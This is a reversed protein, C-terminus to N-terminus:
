FRYLELGPIPIHLLVLQFLPMTGLAIRCYQTGWISKIQPSDFNFHKHRYRWNKTSMDLRDDFYVHNVYQMLTDIKDSFVNDDPVSVVDISPVRIATSDRNLLNKLQRGFYDLVEAENRYSRMQRKVNDFSKIIITILLNILIISMVFAFFFFILPGLFPQATIYDDFEFRNLSVSVLTKLSGFFTSFAPLTTCFVLYFLFGFACFVVFIILGFGWLDKAVRILTRSLTLINHNFRLINILKLFGFFVSFAISSSFLDTLFKCTQLNIYQSGKTAKFIKLVEKVIFFRYIAIGLATCSCLILLFENTNAYSKFYQCRHQCFLKLTTITFSIIFMMYTIQCAMIFYGMNTEYSLLQIGDIFYDTEIGGGPIFEALLTIVGFLNVQANYVSFEILVARTRYDIWNNDELLKFDTKVNETTETIHYVYGGGGYADLNGILVRGTLEEATSYNFARYLTVNKTTVAESLNKREEWDIDYNNDDEDVFATYSGSCKTFNRLTIPGECRDKKIRVQRLISNGMIRNVGDSLFGIQGFPPEDAYNRGIRLQELFVENLWSWYDEPAKIELFTGNEGKRDVFGSKLTSVMLYANPDQIGYSIIIALWMFVLYASLEKIILWSKVEKQRAQKTKDYDDLERTHRLKTHRPKAGTDHLWHEDSSLHPDEEDDDADDEDTEVKKCVASLILAALFVKIPQTIFVSSVFSIVLATLWKKTKTAGFQIGYAWLFFVTAGIIGICLIWAILRFWWPLTFPKNRRYKRVSIKKLTLHQHNDMYMMEELGLSFPGIKIGSNPKDPATQYWMANTVMSLYLFVACTAVRQCRTFRSRPQRCFVSIWLHGNSLTKHGTTSFLHSFDSLTHKDAVPIIREIQRDGREVAFWNEVIFEFKEGTQVDRFVIYNLYWSTNYGEGSNDHWIRLLLLQGLPRSETMVFVDEGGRAFTRSDTGAQKCTGTFVLVEYIYKDKPQNDPLPLAGLETKIGLGFLSFIFLVLTSIITAYVTTNNIFGAHSFVYEFNIPNPPVSFSTAFKTLHNCSCTTVGKKLGVVTCGNPKWTKEGTEYFHCGSAFVNMTYNTTFNSNVVSEDVTKNTAFIQTVNSLLQVVGIYFKGIIATEERYLLRLLNAYAVDQEDGCNEKLDNHLQCFDPFKIASDHLNDVKNRLLNNTGRKLHMVLGSLTKMEIPPENAVLNNLIQRQHRSILRDFKKVEKLAQKGADNLIAQEFVASLAKPIKLDSDGIKVRTDIDIEKVHNLDGQTVMSNALQNSTSMAIGGLVSLVNTLYNRAKFPTRFTAAKQNPDNFIMDLGEMLNAAIRELNDMTNITMNNLDKLYGINAETLQAHKDSETKMDPRNIGYYNLLVQIVQIVQMLQLQNGTLRFYQLKSAIFAKFEEQTPAKVEVAGLKAITYARTTDSISVFVNLQGPKLILDFQSQFTSLLVNNEQNEDKIFAKYSKIETNDPDIWDECVVTFTDILALKSEQDKLVCTGGEPVKDVVFDMAASALTKKLNPPCDDVCEGIMALRLAPNLLNRVNSMKLCLKSVACRLDLIPIKHAIIKVDLIAIASRTGKGVKVLISIEMNKSILSSTNFEWLGDKINVVGPGNGFCGGGGASNQGGPKPVEQINTDDFNDFNENKQRCIWVISFNGAENDPDISLTMPNLLIMQGYGREIYRVANNIIVPILDSSIIRLYTFSWLVLPNALEKGGVKEVSYNFVVKYLGYPLFKAKIYLYSKKTSESYNDLWNKGRLDKVGNNEDVEWITWDFRTELSLSENYTITTGTEIFRDDSRRITLPYLYQTSNILIWADPKPRYPYSNIFIMASSIRTSKATFGYLTVNYNNKENYTHTINMPFITSPTKIWNANIFMPNDSKQKECIDKSGYMELSSNDAFDVIICATPQTSHLIDVVTSLPQRLKPTVFFTISYNGITNFYEHHEAPWVEKSNIDTKSGNGWQIAYGVIDDPNSGLCHLTFKVKTTERFMNNDPGFGLEYKDETLLYYESTVKVKIEYSMLVPTKLTLSNAQNSLKISGIYEGQNKYHHSLPFPNKDLHSTVESSEDGWWWTMSVEGFNQIIDKGKYTVTFTIDNPAVQPSNSTFSWDSELLHLWVQIQCNHTVNKTMSEMTVSVAFTGAKPYKFKHTYITTTDCKLQFDEDAPGILIRQPESTETFDGAPGKSQLTFDLICYGEQSYTQGYVLASNPTIIAEVFHQVGLKRGYSGFKTLTFDSIEGDSAERYGIPSILTHGSDVFQFALVDGTKVLPGNSIHHTVSELGRMKDYSGVEEPFSYSVVEYYDTSGNCSVARPCYQSPFKPRLVKLQIRGPSLLFLKVTSIIGETPMFTSALVFYRTDIDYILPQSAMNIPQALSFGLGVSVKTIDPLTFTTKNEPCYDESPSISIEMNTGSFSTINCIMLDGSLVQKPCEMAFQAETQLQMKVEVTKYMVEYSDNPYIIAASIKYKGPIFYENKIKPMDSLASSLGGDDFNFTYKLNPNQPSLSCEITALVDSKETNKVETCSLTVPHYNVKTILFIQTEVEEQGILDKWVCNSSSKIKDEHTLRYACLCVNQFQIGAYNFGYDMLLCRQQCIDPTTKQQLNEIDPSFHFDPDSLSDLYCGTSNDKESKGYNFCFVLCFLYALKNMATLNSTSPSM